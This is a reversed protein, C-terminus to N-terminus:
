VTQNISLQEAAISPLKKQSQIKHPALKLVNKSM